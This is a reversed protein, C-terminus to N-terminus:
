RLCNLEDTVLEYIETFKLKRHFIKVLNRFNELIFLIARYTLIFGLCAFKEESFCM